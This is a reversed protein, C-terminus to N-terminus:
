YGATLAGDIALAAGTIFPSDDSILFAAFAAIESEDAARGTPQQSLLAHAAEPNSATFGQWLPTNVLGTVLANVRVGEKAAGLATSRTLGVVGHKAAAYAPAGPDGVVGVVSANNVISGGGSAVIAPIEHKLSYFVSTLNLAIVNDWFPADIDRLAGQSNGGGANNFAGHLGGFEKVAVDVLHAVEEEVTVDTPVFLATGGEATIAAATAEGREKDRAGILVTAGESAARKAFAAGMGSSGGTVLVVKSQLRNSM